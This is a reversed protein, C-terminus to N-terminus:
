WLKNEEFTAVDLDWSSFLSFVCTFGFRSGDVTMMMVMMGWNEKWIFAKVKQPWFTRSSPGFINRRNIMGLFLRDFFLRDVCWAYGLGGLTKARGLEEPLLWRCYSLGRSRVHCALSTWWNSRFCLARCPTIPYNRPFVGFSALIQRM